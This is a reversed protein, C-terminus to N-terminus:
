RYSINWIVLILSSVALNIIFTKLQLYRKSLGANLYFYYEISQFYKYAAFSILVGFTGFHIIAEMLDVRLSTTLSRVIIYFICFLLNYKIVDFYYNLFLRTM